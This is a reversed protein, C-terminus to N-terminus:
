GGCKAPALPKADRQNKEIRRLVQLQAKSVDIAGAGRFALDAFVAESRRFAVKGAKEQDGGKFGLRKAVDNFFAQFGHLLEDGGPQAPAGGAWANGISTLLTTAFDSLQTSLMEAATKASANKQADIEAQRAKQAEGIRQEAAARDAELKSQIDARSKNGAEKARTIENEATVRERVQDQIIQAIKREGAELTKGFPAMAILAYAAITRLDAKVNIFGKRIALIADLFSNQLIAAVNLIATKQDDWQASLGSSNFISGLTSSMATAAAKVTDFIQLFSARFLDGYLQIQLFGESFARQINAWMVNITTLSNARLRDWYGALVKWGRAFEVRIFSWMVRFAAVLDGTAISQSIAVWAARAEVGLRDFARAFQDSIVAFGGGFAEFIQNFIGKLGGVAAYARVAAKALDTFAIALLGTVIVLSAVPVAVAVIGTALYVTATVAATAVATFVTALGTLAATAANAVGTAALKVLQLGFDAVALTAKILGYGL